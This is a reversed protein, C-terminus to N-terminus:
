DRLTQNIDIEDAEEADEEVDEDVDEEMDESGEESSEENGSGKAEDVYSEDSPETNEDSLLFLPTRAQRILGVAAESPGAEANGVATAPVTEVRGRSEAGSGGEARNSREEYARRAAEVAAAAAAIDEASLNSLNIPM